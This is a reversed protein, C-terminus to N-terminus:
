MGLRKQAEAYIKQAWAALKQTLDPDSIIPYFVYCLLHNDYDVIANYDSIQYTFASLRSDSDLIEKNNYSDIRANVRLMMTDFEQKTIDALPKFSGDPYGVAIGNGTLVSVAELNWISVSDIDSFFQEQRDDLIGSFAKYLVAVADERSIHNDPLFNGDNNLTMISHALIYNIYVYAPNDISVDPIQMNTVTNDEFSFAKAVTEALEARTLYTDDQQEQDPAAFVYSITANALIICVVFLYIFIMRLSKLM